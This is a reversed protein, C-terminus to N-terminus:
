TWTDSRTSAWKAAKFCSLGPATWIKLTPVPFPKVMDIWDKDTHKIYADIIFAQPVKFLLQVQLEHLHEMNMYLTQVQPNQSVRRSLLTQRTMTHKNVPKSTM